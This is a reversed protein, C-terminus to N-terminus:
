EMKEISTSGDPHITYITNEDVENVGFVDFPFGLAPDHAGGFFKLTINSNVRARARAECLECPTFMHGHECVTLTTGNALKLSYLNQDAM